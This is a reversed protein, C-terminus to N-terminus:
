MDLSHCRSCHYRVLVPHSRSSLPCPWLVFSHYTSKPCTCTYESLAVDLSVLFSLCVCVWESNYQWMSFHLDVKTKEEWQRAVVWCQGRCLHWWVQSACKHRVQMHGGGTSGSDLWPCQSPCVCDGCKFAVSGGVKDAQLLYCVALWVAITVDWDTLMRWLIRSVKDVGGFLALGNPSLLTCHHNVMGTHTPNDEWCITWEILWANSWHEIYHGEGCTAGM